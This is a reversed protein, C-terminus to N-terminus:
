RGFPLQDLGVRVGAYFYRGRFSSPYNLSGVDPERDFLNNVGAYFKFREDDTTFGFQVDHEWKDRYFIYQPEVLDPNAEIQETTYRRTKSFYNIGYNVSVNDKVWTLDLTGNWRPAFPEETDIDVEAGPTPIFSLNDLYGAVMRINFSGVSPSPSFSYNATIDAGSTAFEAVNAPGVLYDNVFGTSPDRGVNSCFINDLSPQDVCLNVLDQATATSIANRLKIDYWDATISLGPIFRPRLVVGATWTRAEEEGLNPNGGARGPLSATARPDDTPNFAAPNIGLGTLLATCNAQRFTTGEPINDPDCPDDIFSFTGNQPSFLESINPARVAESYTGRFRIDPIPGWTGDVKWTTTRGVTSYDSLRIAAGFQLIDFFPTRRFVPVNLEAFGEKVDFSGSEPNIQALDALADQISFDDPQFRSTEKRYEGGIAFGV